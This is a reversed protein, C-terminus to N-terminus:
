GPLNVAIPITDPFRDGILPRLSDGLFREVGDVQHDALSTWTVYLEGLRRHALIQSDIRHASLRSGINGQKAQGVKVYRGPQGAHWIVYVGTIFVRSFDTQLTYWYGFQPQAWNVTLSQM